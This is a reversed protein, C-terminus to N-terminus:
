KIDYVMKDAESYRYRASYSAELFRANKINGLPETWSLRGNVSNTKRDNSYIQDITELSDTLFYRNLTFTNGDENVKSYNYRTMISTSRGPHSAFKHNFVFSGGFEYSKGDNKYSNQSSNM